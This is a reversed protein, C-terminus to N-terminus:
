PGPEDNVFEIRRFEVCPQNDDLGCIRYEGPPADFPPRIFYTQEPVSVCPPSESLPHWVGNQSDAVTHTAGVMQWGILSWRELTVCVGGLRRVPGSAEEEITPGTAALLIVLGALLSTVALVLGRRDGVKM